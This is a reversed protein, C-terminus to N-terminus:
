RLFTAANGFVAMAAAGTIACGWNVGDNNIWGIGRIRFTPQRNCHQRRETTKGCVPCRYSGQVTAGLFSDLLSGTLGALLIWPLLVAGSLWPLGSLGILLSGVIGGALGLFTIGGSLGPSVPKLTTLLFPKEPSLLGIETGWTDATVAALSGLYLPYWDYDPLISSVVVLMGAVGGNAFVQAWDRTSSKEFLDETGSKRNGGM